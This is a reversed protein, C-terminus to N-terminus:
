YSLRCCRLTMFAPVASRMDILFCSFHAIFDGNSAHPAAYCPRASLGMAWHAMQGQAALRGGSVGCAAPSQRPPPSRYHLSHLYYWSKPQSADGARASSFAAHPTRMAHARRIDPFRTPASAHAHTLHARRQAHYTDYSAAAPLADLAQEVAGAVQRCRLM